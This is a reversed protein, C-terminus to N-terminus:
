PRKAAARKTAPKGPKTATAKARAKGTPKTKGIVGADADATVPVPYTAQAAAIDEPTLDRGDDRMVLVHVRLHAPLAPPTPIPTTYATAM